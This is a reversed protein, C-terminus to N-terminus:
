EGEREMEDIVEQEPPLLIYRKLMIEEAEHHQYGGAVLEKIGKQVKEAAKLADHYLRNAAELEAAMKPRWERWHRIALTKLQSTTKGYPAGMLRHAEQSSVIM